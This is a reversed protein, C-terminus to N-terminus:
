LYLLVTHGSDIHKELCLLRYRAIDRSQVLIEIKLPVVDRSQAM